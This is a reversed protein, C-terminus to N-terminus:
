FPLSDDDDIPMFGGEDAAPASSEAPTSFGQM